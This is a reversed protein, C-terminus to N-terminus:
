MFAYSAQRLAVLVSAAGHYTTGASSLFFAWSMMERMTRSVNSPKFRRYGFGVAFCRFSICDMRFSSALYFEPCAPATTRIRVRSRRHFFYDEVAIQRHAVDDHEGGRNPVKMMTVRLLENRIDACATGIKPEVIGM